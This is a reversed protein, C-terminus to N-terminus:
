SNTQKQLRTNINETMPGPMVYIIQQNNQRNKTKAMSANTYEYDVSSHKYLNVPIHENDIQIQTFTSTRASDSPQDNLMNYVEITYEIPEDQVTETESHKM